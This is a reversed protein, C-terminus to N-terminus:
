VDYGDGNTWIEFSSIKTMKLSNQGFVRNQSWFKVDWFNVLIEPIVFWCILIVIGSYLGDIGVRDHLNKGGNKTKGMNQFDM